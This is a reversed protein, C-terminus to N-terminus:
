KFTEQLTSAFYTVDVDKDESLKELVSVISLEKFIQQDYKNKVTGLYKILSIKVNPITDKSLKEVMNILVSKATFKDLHDQIKSFLQIASMRFLYNSNGILHDM